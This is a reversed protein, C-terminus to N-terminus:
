IVHQKAQTRATNEVIATMAGPRGQRAKLNELIVSHADLKPVMAQRTPEQGVFSVLRHRERRIQTAEPSVPLATLSGLQTKSNAQLVSQASPTGELPQSFAKIAYHAAQMQTEQQTHMRVSHVCSVHLATRKRNRLALLAPFAHLRAQKM